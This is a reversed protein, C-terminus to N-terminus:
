VFHVFLAGDIVEDYVAAAGHEVTDIGGDVSEIFLEVPDAVHFRFEGFLFEAHSECQEIIV